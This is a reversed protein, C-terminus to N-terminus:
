PLIEEIAAVLALLEVCAASGPSTESVGMGQAFAQAYASRSGLAAPLLAWGRRAAEAEVTTRLRSRQPARNMVLRAPRREAAALAMTGEAAWLDPLSPQVPVLVLAAGRIARRADADVQPASDVLIVDAARAMRELENALKWGAADSCLVAPLPRADRRKPVHAARLAHWRALSHQPDIDIVGVRRTGAWAAALNAVLTTKGAGGKQQAVAVVVAM